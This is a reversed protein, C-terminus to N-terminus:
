KNSFIAPDYTSKYPLYMPLMVIYTFFTLVFALWGIMLAVYSWTSTNPEPKPRNDTDTDVLLVTLVMVFAMILFSSEYYRLLNPADNGNHPIKWYVHQICVLHCIFSISSVIMRENSHCDMWLACLTLVMLVFAPAILLVHMNEARRGMIFFLYYVRASLNQNMKFSENLVYSNSYLVDWEQGPSLDSTVPKRLMLLQIEDTSYAWSALDITCVQLDYPYDTFDPLCNTSYKVAPVCTVHGDHSLGCNTKAIGPKGKSADHTNHVAIDPTWLSDSPVQITDLGEFDEPNWTLHPDTWNMISWSHMEFVNSADDFSIFRPMFMLGVNTANGKAGIQPRVDEDYDCFLHTKLRHEVSKSSLDKCLEALKYCQVVSASFTLCLLLLIVIRRNRYPM